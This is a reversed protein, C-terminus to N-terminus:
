AHDVEWKIKRIRGIVLPVIMAVAAISFIWGINEEVVESRYYRFAESYNEKDRAMKFYYCAEKYDHNQLRARGIGVYALDYNGNQKLVEMWMDASQEYEGCDYLEIAQYIQQGYSTPTM